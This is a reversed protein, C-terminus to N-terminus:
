SAILGHQRLASLIAALASRAEADNTSGGTPNAIAGAQPGVVQQGAILLKDGRLQGIEWAGSRYRADVASSRVFLSMGEVPTIFRWGGSTFAALKGAQGSWAGTPSAAVIYCSGLVPSSPPSALPLQEVAAGALVDLTQLAENHFLEKQAQGPEIFPLAFRPTSTM